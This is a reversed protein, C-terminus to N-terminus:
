SKTIAPDTLPAGASVSFAELSGQGVTPPFYTFGGLNNLQTSTIDSAGYDNDFSMGVWIKGGAPVLPPTSVRYTLM